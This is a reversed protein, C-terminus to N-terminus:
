SQNFLPPNDGSKKVSTEHFSPECRYGYPIVTRRFEYKKEAVQSAYVCVTVLRNAGEIWLHTAVIFVLHWTM